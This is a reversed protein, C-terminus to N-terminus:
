QLGHPDVRDLGAEGGGRGTVALGDPQDRRFDAIRGQARQGAGGLRIDVRGRDCEFRRTALPQVDEDGGARDVAFGLQAHRAEVHQLGDLAAQLVGGAREVLDLKRGLVRQAGLRIEQDLRHAAGGSMAGVHQVHRVRDAIGLRVLDAGDELAQHGLDLPGPM